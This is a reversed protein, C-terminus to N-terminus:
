YQLGLRLMALYQTPLREGQADVFANGPFFIGAQGGLELTLGYDLPLRYEVGGDLEVGLDHSRSDGGDYNRFRGRIGVIAPDVFDATTQAILAAVKLDLEPVPRVVLTPYLYTAGFIGGNSPLQDAGPNPRLALGPDSATNAARATKWALVEDFLILGVNYNPDFRFRRQVGDYPNADGTAWGWELQAVLRGWREDGTGSTLVAGFRTVAGLARIDEREDNRTQELTRVLNTSGLLYAVEYEGFVHGSTGPIRANVRGASDLAVLDLTEDFARGPLSEADREQHRYVGYFGLLNDRRDAYYAALVGQLAIEDDRLDAAMDKFVLDGAVAVTFPSDKGAPRTAFMLREVRAGGSYDGFLSPHDGDNALIGLGWHSPQQGLRFVGIPSNYQLYLWRPDAELPNRDDLPEDASDVFVTKNGLFFGRPVDIQGVLEFSDRFMVRPTIRLWHYVRYEQGLSATSPDGRFAALPLDSLVAARLQYEGHLNIRLLEADPEEPAVRGTTLVFRRKFGTGAVEDSPPPPPPPLARSPETGAALPPAAGPQAGLERALGLQCVLALAHFVSIRATRRVPRRPYHAPRSWLLAIVV